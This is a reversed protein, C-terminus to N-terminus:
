HLQFVETTDSASTVPELPFPIGNIKDLMRLISQNVLEPYMWPIFHNAEEHIIYEVSTHSLNKEAFRVNDFPVLKDKKGHVVVVPCVIKEWDPLMNHLEPKLHYLERNSSRVAGPLIWRLFPSAFPGRIWADNPELTPDISGAVLIIGDVLEPFDMAFKSVLPGGLSHGVLIVPHHGKKLEILSKIIAAQKQLSSEGRGYTSYGFGPRDASILFAKELLVTDVLFPLFASFSGPSGHIFVVVPKDQRGAQAYYMRRRNTFYHEISGDVNNKSFYRYVTKPKERFTLCGQLVSASFILVVIGAYFREGYLNM